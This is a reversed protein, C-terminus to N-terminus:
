RAARCFYIAVSPNDPLVAAETVGLMGIFQLRSPKGVREAWNKMDTKM